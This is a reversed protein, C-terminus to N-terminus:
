DKFLRDTQKREGVLELRVDILRYGCRDAIEELLSTLKGDDIEVITGSEADLLHFHRGAAVEYRAEAGGFAHRVVIGAEALIHLIRYVTGLSIRRRDTARRYVEQASPHDHAHELVSLVLRRTSTLKLGVRRCHAELESM